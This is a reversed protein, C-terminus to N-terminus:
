RRDLRPDRSILDGDEVRWSGRADPFGSVCATVLLNIHRGENGHVNLLLWQLVALIDKGDRIAAYGKRCAELQPQAKAVYAVITAAKMTPFTKKFHQPDSMRALEKGVQTLHKLVNERTMGIEYTERLHGIKRLTAVEHSDNKKAFTTNIEM